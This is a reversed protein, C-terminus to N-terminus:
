EIAILRNLWSHDGVDDVNITDSVTIGNTVTASAAAVTLNGDIAPVATGTFNIATVNNATINLDGTLTNVGFDITFNTTGTRVATVNGTIDSGLTITQVINTELASTFEAANNVVVSTAQNYVIDKSSVSSNHM